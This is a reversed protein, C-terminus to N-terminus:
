THIRHLDTGVYAFQLTNCCINQFIFTKLRRLIYHAAQIEGMKQFRCVNPQHGNQALSSFNIFLDFNDIPCVRDDRTVSRKLSSLQYLVSSM